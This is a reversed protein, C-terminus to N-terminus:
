QNTLLSTIDLETYKYKCKKVGNVVEPFFKVSYNKVVNSGEVTLLSKFLIYENNEYGIEVLPLYRHPINAADEDLYVVPIRTQQPIAGGYVNLRYQRVLFEFEDWDTTLYDEPTDIYISFHAQENPIVNVGISSQNFRIFVKSTNILQGYVDIMRLQFSYPSKAQYMFEVYKEYETNAYKNLGLVMYDNYTSFITDIDSQTPTMPVYIAHLEVSEGTSIWGNIDNYTNDTVTGYQNNQAPYILCRVVHTVSTTMWAAAGNSDVTLVKGEDQATSSPVGEPPNAWTNAAGDFTLIQGAAPATAPEDVKGALNSLDFSKTGDAESDVAVKMGSALEQAEPLQYIRIDEDQAQPM